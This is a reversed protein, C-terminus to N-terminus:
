LRLQSGALILELFLVIVMVPYVPGPLATVMGVKVLPKGTVLMPIPANLPVVLKVLPEIGPLWVLMPADANPPTWLRVLTVVPLRTVLM